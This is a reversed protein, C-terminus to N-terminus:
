EEYTYAVALRATHGAKLASRYASSSESAGVVLVGYQPSGDLWAQVITKVDVAVSIGDSASHAKTAAGTSTAAPGPWKSANSSAWSCATSFSGESWAATIRKLVIKPSSGWQMCGGRETTFTITASTVKRNRGRLPISAFGFAGRTVQGDALRGVLVNAGAGNGGSNTDVFCSDKTCALTGTYSKTVPPPTSGGGGSDSAPRSGIEGGTPDLTMAVVWDGPTATWEQAMVQYVGAVAQGPLAYQVFDFVTLPLVASLRNRVRIEVSLSPLPKEPPDAALAKVMGEYYIPPNEPDAAADTAYMPSASLSAAKYTRRGYKGISASRDVLIDTAADFAWSNVVREVSARIETAAYPIDDGVLFEGMPRSSDTKDFDPVVGVPLGARPQIRWVGQRDIGVIANSAREYKDLLDLMPGTQATAEATLTPLFTSSPMVKTSSPVGAFTAMAAVRDALTGAVNKAGHIDALNIAAFTALGDNATVLTQIEADDCDEGAPTYRYEIADVTGVWLTGVPLASIVVPDGVEFDTIRGRLTMSCSGGEPSAMWWVRGTRWSLDAVLDCRNVGAVIVDPYGVGADVKGWVSEGSESPEWPFQDSWRAM